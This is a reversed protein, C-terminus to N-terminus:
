GATLVNGTGEDTLEPDAGTWQVTNGDGTVTVVAVSDTYVATGTGTVELTDVAGVVVAGANLNVILHSCDGEVSVMAGAQELTLEGDCTVTTTASDRLMARASDGDTETDTDTPADTDTDDASGETPASDESPVPATQDAQDPGTISVACGSLSAGLLLTVLVVASRAILRM